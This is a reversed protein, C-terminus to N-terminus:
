PFRENPPTAVARLSGWVVASSFVDMMSEVGDAILVYANGLVGALIKIAALVVNALIGVTTARAGALAAAAIREQARLQQAQRPSLTGDSHTLDSATSPAPTKEPPYEM